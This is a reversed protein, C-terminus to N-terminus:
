SIVYLKDEKWTLHNNLIYNGIEYYADENRIIHEWYNRQWLKGMIVNQTKYLKLCQNSVLSKYAGVIDGIRYPMNETENIKVGLNIDNIIIIGHLHNPMIVFVDLKIYKFREPLKLWENKAINGFENLEIQENNIKGFRCIKDQCYITIFYYGARTYDYGRYRLSNRSPKNDINYM